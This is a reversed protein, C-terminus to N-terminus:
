GPFADPDVASSSANGGVVKQLSITWITYQGGSTSYKLPDDFKAFSCQQTFTKAKTDWDKGSTYFVSYTGNPVGKVTYSGSGRVYVSVSPSKSGSKVLSIVADSSANTVKLEGPGRSSLKKVMTGNSLRRNALQTKGPLSKGFQFTPDAKALTDAAARLDAVAPSQSLTALAASGACLAGGGKAQFALSDLARLLSAHGSTASPPVVAAMLRTHIATATKSLADGAARVAASTRAPAFGAVATRLEADASALLQQYEQATLPPAPSTSAAVAIPITPLDPDSGTGSCAILACAVSVLAVVRGALHPSRTLM